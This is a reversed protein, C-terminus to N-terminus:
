GICLIIVRRRAIRQRFPYNKSLQSILFLHETADCHNQIFNCSTNWIAFDGCILMQNCIEKAFGYVYIFDLPTIDSSRPPWTITDERGTWRDSFVM